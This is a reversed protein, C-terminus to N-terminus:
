EQRDQESEFVSVLRSSLICHNRFAASLCPWLDLFLRARVSSASIKTTDHSYRRMPPLLVMDLIVTLGPSRPALHEQGFISWINKKALRKTAADGAFTNRYFLPKHVLEKESFIGLTTIKAFTVSGVSDVNIYDSALVTSLATIDFSFTENPHIVFMKADWCVAILVLILKSISLM